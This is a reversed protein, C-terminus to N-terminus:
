VKEGRGKRERIGDSFIGEGKKERGMTMSEQGMLFYRDVGERRKGKERTGDSDEKVELVNRRRGGEGERGKGNEEM